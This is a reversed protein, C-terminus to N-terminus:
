LACGCMPCVKWVPEVETGCKQCNGKQNLPTACVPCVKWGQKIKTGCKGCVFLQLTKFELKKQSMPLLKYEVVHFPFYEFEMNVMKFYQDSVSGKEVRGTEQTAKMKSSCRKLSPAESDSLCDQEINLFNMTDENDVIRRCLKETNYTATNTHCGKVNTTTHTNNTYTVGLFAPAPKERFFEVTIAGNDEIAKQVAASTGVTYTEFLFRRNEDLYRDLWGRQGPRLVLGKDSIRKGNISIRAMLNESTPNFMEFTFEQNNKLYVNKGEYVKQRNKGISIYAEPKFNTKM